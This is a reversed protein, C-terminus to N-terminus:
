PSTACKEVSQKRAASFNGSMAMEHLSIPSRGNGSKSPMGLAAALRASLQSRSLWVGRCPHRQSATDDLHGDSVRLGERSPIPPTNATTEANETQQMTRM